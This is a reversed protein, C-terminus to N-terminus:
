RCATLPDDVLQVGLATFRSHIDPNDLLAALSEVM